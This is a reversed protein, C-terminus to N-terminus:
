GNQVKQIKTINLRKEKPLTSEKLNTYEHEGWYWKKNVNTFVDIENFVFGDTVGGEYGDVSVITNPDYKKLHEIMEQVTM